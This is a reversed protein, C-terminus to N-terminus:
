RNSECPGKEKPQLPFLREEFPKKKNERVPQFPFGGERSTSFFSAPNAAPAFIGAENRKCLINCFKEVSMAWM